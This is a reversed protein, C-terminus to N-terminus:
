SVWGHGVPRRGHLDGDVVLLELDGRAGQDDPGGLLQPDHDRAEAVVPQEGREAGAPLAQDLHAPLALREGGAGGRHGVAHHDLGLLGGLHCPGALFAGQLQQEDVM